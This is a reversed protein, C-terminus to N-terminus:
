AHVLAALLDPSVGLKVKNGERCLEQIVTATDLIASTVRPNMSQGAAAAHDRQGTLARIASGNAPVGLASCEQILSGLARDLSAALERRIEDHGEKPFAEAADQLAHVIALHNPTQASSADIWRGNEAQGPFLGLTLRGVIGGLLKEQPRARHALSILRLSYANALFNPLNPQGLAWDAARAAADAWEAKGTASAAEALASGCFGTEVQAAGTPDVAVVWGDKVADPQRAVMSEVVSAFRSAKGRPDLFPFHGDAQQRRTLMLATAQLVRDLMELRDPLHRAVAPRADACAGVLCAYTTLSTDPPNRNALIPRMLWNEGELADLFLRAADAEAIPRKISPVRGPRRIEPLGAQDGLVTRMEQISTRIANRDGQRMARDFAQSLAGLSSLISPSPRFIKLGGISWGGPDLGVEIEMGRILSEALTVNRNDIDVRVKEAVKNIRDILAKDKREGALQRAIGLRAEADAWTLRPGGRDFMIRINTMSAQVDDVSGITGEEVGRQFNSLQEMAQRAEAELLEARANAAKLKAQTESLRREFDAWAGKVAEDVDRRRAAEADAEAAGAPAAPATAIAPTQASLREIEARLAAREREAQERAQNAENRIQGAQERAENAENRFQEVQAAAEALRARAADAEGRLQDAQERAANAENQFRRALEEVEALRAQAANAEGRAQEAREAQERAENAENRFQGAQERAQNAENQLREVQESLDGIRARAENAENQFQQAQEARDRAANAEDQLAQLREALGAAQDRAANAENRASALEAELRGVEESQDRPPPGAFEIEARLRALEDELGRAREAEAALEARATGTEARQAALDGDIRAAEAAAAQCRSALEDAEARARDREERLSKRTQELEVELSRRERLWAAERDRDSAEVREAAERAMRAMEDRLDSEIAERDALAAEKRAVQEAAEDRERALAEAESRLRDCERRLEAIERFPAASVEDILTSQNIAQDGYKQRLSEIEAQLRDRDAVAADHLMRLAEADRAADGGARLSEVEEAHRRGAELSAMEVEQRLTEAERAEQRARDREERLSRAEARLREVEAPDPVPAAEARARLEALSAAMSRERESAILARAEAERIAQDRDEGARRLAETAADLRLRAAELELLLAGERDPRPEALRRELDLILAQAARLRDASEAERADRESRLSWLEAELAEVRRDSSSTLTSSSPSPAPQAAFPHGASSAEDDASPQARFIHTCHKCAVRRGLLEARAKGETGCNPCRFQIRQHSDM